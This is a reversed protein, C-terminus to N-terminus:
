SCMGICAMCVLVYWYMCYTGSDILVYILASNMRVLVYWFVHWFCVLIMIYWYMNVSAIYAMIGIRANRKGLPAGFTNARSTRSMAILLDNFNVPWQLGSHKNQRPDTWPFLM